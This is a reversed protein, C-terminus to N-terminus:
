RAIAEFVMQLRNCTPSKPRDFHIFAVKKVAFDPLPVTIIKASKKIIEELHQPFEKLEKAAFQAFIITRLTTLKSANTQM